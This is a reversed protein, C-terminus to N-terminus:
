KTLSGRKFFTGKSLNVMEDGCSKETVSLIMMIGKSAGEESDKTHSNRFIGLLRYYLYIYVM